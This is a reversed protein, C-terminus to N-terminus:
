FGFQQALGALGGTLGQGQAHLVAVVVAIIEDGAEDAVMNGVVGLRQICLTGGSHQRLGIDANRHREWRPQPVAPLIVHTSTSQVTRDLRDGVAQGCRPELGPQGIQKGAVRCLYGLGAGAACSADHGTLLLM